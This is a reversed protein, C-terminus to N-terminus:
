KLQPVDWGKADAFGTYNIEAQVLPNSYFHETAEALMLEFFLKGSFNIWIEGEAKGQQVTKLLNNKHQASLDAFSKHSLLLMSETIGKLGTKYATGDPPLQNYRWGPGSKAVLREDIKGAIDVLRNETQAMLFDCVSQLLEFEDATFFKPSIANENEREKLVQKTKITVLDSNLLEDLAEKVM